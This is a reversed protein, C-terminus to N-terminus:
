WLKLCLVIFMFFLFLDLLFVGGFIKLLVIGEEVEVIVGEEGVEDLGVSCVVM